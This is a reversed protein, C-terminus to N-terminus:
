PTESESRWGSNYEFGTTHCTICEADFVTNPKSDHELSAYARAHGTTSWKAYTRPHCSKCSAVGVFTAGNVNVYDRRTFNEVVGATMLTERYEDQILKKMALGPGNFQKNLTVRQYRPRESNKPYFAFAG